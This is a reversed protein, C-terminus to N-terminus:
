RVGQGAPASPHAEGGSRLMEEAAAHVADASLGAPDYLIRHGEERPGFIGHNPHLFLALTPVGVAAALHMPGTDGSIFLRCRSVAAAFLRLPLRPARAGVGAPLAELLAEEGPGHFVVVQRGPGAEIRRIVEAFRELPWRKSGRGGPHVGVLLRDGGVGAAELRRRAEESEDPLVPFRLGRNEADPAVVRLLDVFVDALHKGEEAELPLGHDLLRAAPGGLFGLRRRARSAATLLSATLSFQHPHSADVALDYDGEALRTGIRFLGLPNRILRRKDFVIVRRLRPDRNMLGATAGGAVLDISVGPWARGMADLMPTLLILNGIREDPRVVLVRRIEGPAVPLASPRRRPLVYLPAELLGKGWEEFRNAM